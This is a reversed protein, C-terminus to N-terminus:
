STTARGCSGPRPQLVASCTRSRRGASAACGPAERWPTMAASWMPEMRRPQMAMCYCSGGGNAGFLADHGGQASGLMQEANGYGSPDQGGGVERLVDKAGRAQGMTRADGFVRSVAVGSAGTLADDGGRAHDALTAADGYLNLYFSTTGQIRDNGGWAHGLLSGGADGSASASIDEGDRTATVRQAGGRQSCSLNFQTDGAAAM